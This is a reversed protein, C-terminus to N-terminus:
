ENVAAGGRMSVLKGIIDMYMDKYVTLSVIKQRMHEMTDNPMMSAQQQMHNLEKHLNDNLHQLEDREVTLKKTEERLADIEGQLAKYEDALSDDEQAAKGLGLSRVIGMRIGKMEEDKVSKVFATLLDAFCYSIMIPRTYMQVKCMVPITDEDAKDTLRLTSCIGNANALVLMQCGSKAHIWIEGPRPPATVAKYCPEDVYGSGNRKLDNEKMM